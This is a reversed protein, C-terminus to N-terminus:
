IVTQYRQGFILSLAKVHEEVLESLLRIHRPFSSFGDIVSVISSHAFGHLPIVVM